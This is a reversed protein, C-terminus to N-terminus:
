NGSSGAAMPAQGNLLMARGSVLLLSHILTATHNLLAAGILKDLANHRGVDEPVL